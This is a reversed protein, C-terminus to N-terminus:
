WQYKRGMKECISTCYQVGCWQDRTVSFYSQQFLRIKTRPADDPIRIFHLIVTLFLIFVGTKYRHFYGVAPLQVVQNSQSAQKGELAQPFQHSVIILAVQCREEGSSNRVATFIQQSLKLLDEGGLGPSCVEFPLSHSM